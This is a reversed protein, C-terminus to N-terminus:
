GWQYISSEQCGTGLTLVDHPMGKCKNRNAQLTLVNFTLDWM